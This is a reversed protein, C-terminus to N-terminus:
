PWSRIQSEVADARELVIARDTGQPILHLPPLRQAFMCEGARSVVEVNVHPFVIGIASLTSTREVRGDFLFDRCVQGLVSVVRGQMRRVSEDVRIQTELIDQDSLLIAHRWFDNGDDISIPAVSSKKVVEAFVWGADLIPVKRWLAVGVVLNQPLM